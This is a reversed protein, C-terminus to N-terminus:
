RVPPNPMPHEIADEAALAAMARHYEAKTLAGAYLRAVLVAEARTASDSPSEPGPDIRPGVGFAVGSPEMPVWCQAAGACADLFARGGRILWSVRRLAIWLLMTVAFTLLLGTLM